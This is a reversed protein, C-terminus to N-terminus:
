RTGASVSRTRRKSALGVPAPRLRAPSIRLRRLAVATPLPEVRLAMSRRVMVAAPRLVTAVEVPHVAAPLAMAEPLREALLVAALLAVVPHVGAVLLVAALLVAARHVGVAPHLVVPLVAVPLAGVALLVALRNGAAAVPRIAAAEPHGTVEPRIAAV